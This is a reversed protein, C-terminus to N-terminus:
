VIPRFSSCNRLPFGNFPVNTCGKRFKVKDNKIDQCLGIPEEGLM